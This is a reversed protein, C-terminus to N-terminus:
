HPGMVSRAARVKTSCEEGRKRRTVRANGSGGEIREVGMMSREDVALPAAAECSVEVYGEKAEVAVEMGGDADEWLDEFGAGEEVCVM